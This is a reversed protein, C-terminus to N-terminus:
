SFEELVKVKIESNFENQLISEIADLTGAQSSPCGGCAGQYNITVINDKYELVELDGGDSQLGPRITRELIEDIKKLDGVLSKKEIGTQNNFDPNHTEINRKLAKSIEDSLTNWDDEGDQTVSIVNEFFHVNVVHPIWLLVKALPIGVEDEVGFGVKGQKIVDRNLVFKRANPNPTGQIVIELNM